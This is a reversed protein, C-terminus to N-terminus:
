QMAFEINTDVPKDLPLKVYKDFFDKDLYIVNDEGIIQQMYSSKAGVPIVAIVTKGRQQLLRITSEYDTDASLLVIIDATSTLMGNAVNIDTTKEVHKYTSPDNKDIPINKDKPVRSLKGIVVDIFKCQNLNDLFNKHKDYKEPNDSRDSLASYYYAKAFNCNNDEQIIDRIGLCMQKWNPKVSKVSYLEAINKYFNNADIYMMMVSKSM